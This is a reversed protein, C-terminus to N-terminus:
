ARGKADDTINRIWPNPEEHPEKPRLQICNCHTECKFCSPCREELNCRCQGLERWCCICTVM